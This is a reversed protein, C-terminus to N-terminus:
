GRGPPKRPSGGDDDRHLATRAARRAVDHLREKQAEALTLGSSILARVVSARSYSQEPHAARLEEALRDLRDVLENPLRIVARKV